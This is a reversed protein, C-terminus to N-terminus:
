NQDVVISLEFILAGNQRKSQVAFRQPSCCVYGISRAPAELSYPWKIKVSQIPVVAPFVHVAATRSLSRSSERLVPCLFLRTARAVCITEARVNPVTPLAPPCACGDLSGRSVAKPSNSSLAASAASSRRRYGPLLRRELATEPEGQSVEHLIDFGDPSYTLCGNHCTVACDVRRFGNLTGFGGRPTLMGFHM